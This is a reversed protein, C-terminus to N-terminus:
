GTENLDADPSFGFLLRFVNTFETHDTAILASKERDSLAEWKPLPTRVLFRKYFRFWGNGVTPAEAEATLRLLGGNLVRQLSAVPWNGPWIAYLSHAPIAQSDDRCVLPVRCMEPMLLKPAQQWQLGFADITRWWNNGDRVQSRARLKEEHPQVWAAFGPYDKIDILHGASDYPAVVLKTTSPTVSHGLSDRGLYSRVLEAEIGEAEHSSILFTSGCGLAPGVRVECGAEALTGHRAVLGAHLRRAADRSPFRPAGGESNKRALRVITSYAGVKRVFPKDPREDVVELDWGQGASHELFRAGYQAFLWRDSVLAAIRGGERAWGMMRDLFAVAIDGRTALEPLQARYQEALQRPLKSWRLYPPNAAVHTARGATALLFDAELVWDAALRDALDKSLGQEVLVSATKLRAVAATPAHFEFGRIRNALREHTLAIGAARLGDLLRTAGELLIAGEGVCPELLVACELDSEVTWGILDLLRSATETTTYVACREHMEEIATASEM